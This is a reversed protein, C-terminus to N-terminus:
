KSRIGFQMTGEGMAHAVVENLSQILGDKFETIKRGQLPAQGAKSLKVIAHIYWSVVWHTM